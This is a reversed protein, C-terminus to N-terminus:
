TCISRKPRTATSPQALLAPVGPSSAAAHMRRHGQRHRRRAGCVPDDNRTAQLRPDHHRRPGEEAAIGTAHSRAGPDPEERRRLAGAGQGAPRSLARRHRSGERLVEPRQLAQLQADSAAEAWAGGLHAAREVPQPRGGQRAQAGVLAHGGAAERPVDHQCGARDGRGDSAAQTRPAHRRAELGAAGLALYRDRWRDATRKTKGTARVIATVGTGQAWMLVIRARWVLKRRRTAARWGAKWGRGIRPLCSSARKTKWGVCSARDRAM